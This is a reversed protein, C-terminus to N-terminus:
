LEESVFSTTTTRTAHLLLHRIQIIVSDMKPVGRISLSTKRDPATNDFARHPPYDVKPELRCAHRPSRLVQFRQQVESGDELGAVPLPEQSCGKSPLVPDAWVDKLWFGCRLVELM